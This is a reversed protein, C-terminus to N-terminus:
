FRVLCPLVGKIRCIGIVLDDFFRVAFTCALAFAFAFLISEKAHRIRIRISTRIRIENPSFHSRSHSVSRSPSRLHLRLPSTSKGQPIPYSWSKEPTWFFPHTSSSTSHASSGLQGEREVVVM